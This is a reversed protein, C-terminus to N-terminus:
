RNILNILRSGPVPEVTLAAQNGVQGTTAFEDDSLQNMLSLDVKGGTSVEVRKTEVAYFGMMKAVERLGAIMGMPNSQAGGSRHGGAAGGARRSAPLCLAEPLTLLNSPKYPRRSALM